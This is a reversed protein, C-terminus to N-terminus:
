AGTSTARPPWLSLACGAIMIGALAINIAAGPAAVREIPWYFRLAMRGLQELLLALFALPVLSRYRALVVLCLMGLVLQCLGWASFAFLFAAAGSAGFTDVPVGDAKRAVQPANLMVNLGMPIKLLMLSFLWLGLRHGPYNNDAVRPFLRDLM